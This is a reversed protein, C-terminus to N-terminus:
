QVVQHMQGDLYPSSVQDGVKIGRAAVQGAKVELVARAPEASSIVREDYPRANEVIHSVKNDTGIFIMDLPVVTNRMWMQIEKVEDYVFLMGYDDAISQRFMLGKAQSAPDLAVEINFTQVKDQANLIGLKSKPMDIEREESARMHKFAYSGAVFLGNGILLVAIALGVYFAYKVTKKSM